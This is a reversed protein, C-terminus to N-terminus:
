SWQLSSGKEGLRAQFIPLKMWSESFLKGEYHIHYFKKEVLDGSNLSCKQTYGKNSQNMKMKTMNQCILVHPKLFCLPDNFSKLGLTVVTLNRKVTLSGGIASQSNCLNEKGSGFSFSSSPLVFFSMELALGESADFKERYYWGQIM